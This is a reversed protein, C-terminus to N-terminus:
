DELVRRVWGLFFKSQSSNNRVIKDYAKIREIKYKYVLAEEKYINVSDKLSNNEQKLFYVNNELDTKDINLRIISDKLEEIKGKLVLTGDREEYYLIDYGIPAINEKRPNASNCSNLLCFALLIISIKKM